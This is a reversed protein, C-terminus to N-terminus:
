STGKGKNFPNNGIAVFINSDPNIAIGKKVLDQKYKELREAAYAHLFGIQKVGKYKGKGGGKM